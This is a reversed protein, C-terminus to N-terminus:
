LDPRRRGNNTRTPNRGARRETAYRRLSIFSFPLTHTHTNSLPLDPSSPQKIVANHFARSPPRNLASVASLAFSFNFSCFTYCLFLPLSLRPMSISASPFRTSRSLYVPARGNRQKAILSNKKKVETYKVETCRGETRTTSRRAESRHAYKEPIM